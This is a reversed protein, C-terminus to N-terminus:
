LSRSILSAVIYLGGLSLSVVAWIFATKSHKRAREFDGDRLAKDVQWSYNLAVLGLILSAFISVIALVRHNKINQNM